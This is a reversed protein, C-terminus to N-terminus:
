VFIKVTVIKDKEILEKKRVSAKIPLLYTQLKRDFWISTKWTTEGINVSSKLRGWGEEHQKSVQRIDNTTKEPLSVFYWGANSDHQWVKASFEYQIKLIM